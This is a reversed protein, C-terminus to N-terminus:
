RVGDHRECRRVGGAIRAEDGGNATAPKWRRLARRRSSQGSGVFM